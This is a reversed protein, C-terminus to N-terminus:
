KLFSILRKLTAKNGPPLLAVVKVICAAKADTDGIEVCALEFCLM